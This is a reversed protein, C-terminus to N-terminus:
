CITDNVFEQPLYGNTLKDMEIQLRALEGAVQERLGKVKQLGFGNQGELTLMILSIMEKGVRENRNSRNSSVIMALISSVWQLQIAKAFMFQNQVILDTYDTYVTIDFNLGNHQDSTDMDELSTFDGLREIRRICLEQITNMLNSREFNREYPSFIFEPVYYGLYFQGKYYNDSMDIYWDLQVTQLTGDDTTTITQEKIPEDQSSHFLQVVLDGVGGISKGEIKVSSICFAINKKDSIKIEYGYFQTSDTSITILENRDFPNSYILNRDIYSPKNFVQAMVNNLISGELQEWKAQYDDDTAEAYNQCDKWFEFNFHEVDDLFLESKSVYSTAELVDNVPNLPQRVAVLGKLGSQIKAVNIM